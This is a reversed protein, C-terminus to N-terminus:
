SLLIYHEMRELNEMAYQVSPERGVPRRGTVRVILRAKQIGVQVQTRSPEGTREGTGHM